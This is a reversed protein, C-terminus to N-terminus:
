IRILMHKVYVRVKSFRSTICIPAMSSELDQSPFSHGQCRHVDDLLLAWTPVDEETMDIRTYAKHEVTATKTFDVM